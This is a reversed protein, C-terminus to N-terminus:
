GIGQRNTCIHRYIGHIACGSICWVGCMYGESMGPIVGGLLWHFVRDPSESFITELYPDYEYLGDYVARRAVVHSPCQMIMHHVNEVLYMDWNPCAKNSQSSGKLRVDDCKLNSAHCVLKAM